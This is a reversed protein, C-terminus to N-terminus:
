RAPMTSAFRDRVIQAFTKAALTRFKHRSWLLASTRVPIPDVLPLVCLHPAKEVSSELMIAALNSTGALGRMLEITNTECAVKPTVGAEAM